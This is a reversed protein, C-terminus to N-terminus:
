MWRIKFYFATDPDRIAVLCAAAVTDGSSNSALWETMEDWPVQKNRLDFCHGYEAQLAAKMVEIKRDISAIFRDNQRKLSRLDALKQKEADISRSLLARTQYLQDTV